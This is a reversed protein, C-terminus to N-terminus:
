GGRVERLTQRNLHWSQELKENLYWGDICDTLTM